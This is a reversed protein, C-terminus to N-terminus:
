RLTDGLVWELAEVWGKTVLYDVSDISYDSDLPKDLRDLARKEADLVSRISESDFALRTHERMCAPTCYNNDDHVLEQGDDIESVCNWCTRKAEMRIDNM